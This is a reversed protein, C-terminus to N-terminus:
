HCPGKQRNLQSSHVGKIFGALLTIYLHDVLFFCDDAKRALFRSSHEMSGIESSISMTAYCDFERVLPIINLFRQSPRSIQMYNANSPFPRVTKEDPMSSKM